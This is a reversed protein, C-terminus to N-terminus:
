CTAPAGAARARAAAGGRRADGREAHEVGLESAAAECEARRENYGSEAHEHAAGSDVTVLQWGRLDLPM